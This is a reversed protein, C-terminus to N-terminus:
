SPFLRQKEDDIDKRLRGLQHDCLDMFPPFWKLPLRGSTIHDGHEITTGKFKGDGWTVKSGKPILFVQNLNRDSHAVFANRFLIVADHLRTLSPESFRSYKSPLAPAKKTPIFPRAYAIAAASSLPIFLEDQESKINEAVYRIFKKAQDLDRRAIILVMLARHRKNNADFSIM